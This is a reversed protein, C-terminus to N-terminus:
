ADEIGKETFEYVGGLIHLSSGDHSSVLLPRSKKRFKHVYQETKGDRVATYLVGDLEGVVFGTKPSPLKVREAYRADHGTFDAFLEAAQRERVRGSM